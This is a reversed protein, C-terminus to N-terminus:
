PLYLFNIVVSNESEKHPCDLLGTTLYAGVARRYVNVPFYNPKWRVHSRDLKYRVLRAFSASRSVKLNFKLCGIQKRPSAPQVPPELAGGTGSKGSEYLHERLAIKAAWPECLSSRRSKLSNNICMCTCKCLCLLECVTLSQTKICEIVTYHYWIRESM